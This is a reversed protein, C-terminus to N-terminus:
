KEQRQLVTSHVFRDAPHISVAVEFLRDSQDVYQRVFELAHADPQTGLLAAMEKPVGVARISQRIEKVVRGTARGIMDCILSPTGKLQRRIKKGDEITVYVDTWSLPYGTSGPIARSMLIHLWRTGPPCGLKRSLEVDVVVENMGHVTRQTEAGYQVLEEITSIRPAYDTSRPVSSEVRTGARKRRSVLGLEQVRLLATRVTGRSVGYLAALELEGPLSSGVPYTGTAIDHILTKTLEAHRPEM